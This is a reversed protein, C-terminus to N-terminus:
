QRSRMEDAAARVAKVINTHGNVNLTVGIKM